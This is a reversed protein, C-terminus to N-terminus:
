PKVEEPFVKNASQQLVGLLHAKTKEWEALEQDSDIFLSILERIHATWAEVYQERSKAKM